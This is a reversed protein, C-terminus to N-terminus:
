DDITIIIPDPTAQVFNTHIFHLITSLSLGGAIADLIAVKVAHLFQAPSTSSAQVQHDVPPTTATSSSSTLPLPQLGFYLSSPQPADLHLHPYLLPNDDKDTGDANYGNDRM